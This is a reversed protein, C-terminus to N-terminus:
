QGIAWNATAEGGRLNRLHAVWAGKTHVWLVHGRNLFRVCPERCREFTLLGESNVDYKMVDVQTERPVILWESVPVSPVLLGPVVTEVVQLLLSEVGSRLILAERLGIRCVLPRRSRFTAGCTLSLLPEPAVLPCFV